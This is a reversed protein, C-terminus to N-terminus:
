LSKSHQIYIIISIIFVISFLIQSLTFGLILFNPDPIRFFEVFVRLFSYLIFFLFTIKGYQKKIPDYYELKNYYTKYTYYLVGFIIVNKLAEILQSPYRCGIINHVFNSQSYDICIPFSTTVRGILEANVFNAIRGLALFIPIFLLFGDSLQLFEVEYEKSLRKFAILAGIIGGLISMGGNWFMFIESIHHVYYDFAYVIVYFLRAAVFSYFATILVINDIDNHNNVETNLFYNDDFLKRLFKWIFIFGLVYVIGYFYIDIGAFSFMVPNINHYITYM